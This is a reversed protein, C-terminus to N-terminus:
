GRGQLAASRYIKKLHGTLAAASPEDHWFGLHGDPRIVCIAPRDAGFYDHLRGDPDVLLLNNLAPYGTDDKVAIWVNLPQRVSSRALPVIRALEELDDASADAAFLLVTPDIHSILDLLGVPKDGSGLGQVDSVRAGAAVTPGNEQECKVEVIPSQPYAYAIESDALAASRRGEETALFAFMSELLNEGSPAMRAYAQKGSEVIEEDVSRREAEYTDILTEDAHGSVVAALKWGLNFADHIGANMGHGEIPNSAHAADGVLLVRGIRFRRALRSHSHFFAPEEPDLLRVGPSLVGLRETVRGLVDGEATGTRFYVRWRDEGLPFPIAIPDRMQAYVTDRAGQWGALHTDFVGWLESYDAGEFPDGVAERVVSRYGDAAVLWRAEVSAPAGDVTRLSVRVQEEDQEIGVCEIGREVRGGLEELLDTLIRITESEPLSLVHPCPSDIETLRFAAKEEADAFIKVGDVIQGRSYFADKLGLGILIELTRPKIFIAQSWAVPEAAKDILRFDVGRRALEIALMMGAAGAGVILVPKGESSRM